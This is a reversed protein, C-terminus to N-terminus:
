IGGSWRKKLLHRRPTINILVSRMCLVYSEFCVQLIKKHKQTDVKDRIVKVAVKVGQYKATWIDAFGGWAVSKKSLNDVGSIQLCRPFTDSNKALEIM